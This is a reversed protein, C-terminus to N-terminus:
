AATAESAGHVPQRADRRLRPPEEGGAQILDAAARFLEDARSFSVDGPRVRAIKSVLAGIEGAIREAGPAGRDRGRRRRDRKAAAIEGDRELGDALEDLHQATFAQV